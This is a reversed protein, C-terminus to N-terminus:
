FSRSYLRITSSRSSELTECHAVSSGLAHAFKALKRKRLSVRSDDSNKQASSNKAHKKGAVCFFFDLADRARTISRICGASM